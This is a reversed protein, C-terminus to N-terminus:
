DNRRVWKSLIRSVPNGVFVLVFVATILTIFYSSVSTLQSISLGFNQLLGFFLGALLIGVASFLGVNAVLITQFGLQGAFGAIFRHQVGLVELAGAAGALGGSLLFAIRQVSAVRVGAYRAFDANSSIARLSYGFSTRALVIAFLVVAALSLVIGYNADSLVSISPITTGAPIEDTSVTSGIVGNVTGPFWTKVIWTTLLVAVYNLMLTSVIVNVGLRRMLFEAPWAWVAGGLAGALIALILTLWGPLPSYMAVLTASLAGSYIQGEIGINFLGAQAAIAFGLAALILPTAWRITDLVGAPSALSGEFIALLESGSVGQAGMIALSAILGIVLALLYRLTRSKGITKM